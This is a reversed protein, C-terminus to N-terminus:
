AIPPGRPGLSSRPQASAPPLVAAVMRGPDTARVGRALAVRGPAEFAQLARCTLCYEHHHGPACPPGNADEVHLGAQAKKSDAEAWADVLPGAAVVVVHLLLVL